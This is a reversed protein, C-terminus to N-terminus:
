PAEKTEAGSDGCLASPSPAPSEPAGVAAPTCGAPTSHPLVWAVGLALIIGILVVAMLTRFEDPDTLYTWISDLRGCDICRNGTIEIYGHCRRCRAYTM